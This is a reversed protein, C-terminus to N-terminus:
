DHVDNEALIVISKGTANGSEAYVQYEGSSIGEIKTLGYEDTMADATFPVTFVHVNGLPEGDYLVKVLLTSPAPEDKKCSFTLSVMVLMMIVPLASFYIKKLSTMHSQTKSYIPFMLM